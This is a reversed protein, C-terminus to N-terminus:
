SLIRTEEAMNKVMRKNMESRKFRKCAFLQRDSRRQCCFVKSYAGKGIVESVIYDKVLRM